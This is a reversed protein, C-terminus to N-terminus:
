VKSQSQGSTSSWLTLYRRINVTFVHASDTGIDTKRLIFFFVQVGAVHRAARQDFQQVGPVADSKVRM